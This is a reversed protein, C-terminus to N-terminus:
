IYLKKIKEIIESLEEGDNMLFETELQASTPIKPIGVKSYINRIDDIKQYYYNIDTNCVKECLQELQKVTKDYEEKTLTITRQLAECSKILSYIETSEFEVAKKEIVDKYKINIAEAIDSRLKDIILRMQRDNYKKM